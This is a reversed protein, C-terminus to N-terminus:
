DEVEEVEFLFKTMDFGLEGSIKKFSLSQWENTPFIRQTEKGVQLDVPMIFDDVDAQWRYSLTANKGRKKVKIQLKPLHPHHLYQAFYYSLNQKLHKNFFAIVEPTTVQQLRHQEAFKKLTGFWLDDDNIVNRLGHLMWAGKYYIDSGTWGDYNIGLPGLMAQKNSISRRQSMLYQVAKEDNHQCEMYLMESYTTFSEHIWMEAHDNVSLSNGFWEHGSEHVIIYDFGWANNKFENGYAIASQHEMGWYSAEVLKYGDRPFPYPGFYHEFCNLMGTVQAFHKKAEQKHGYLVYYDLTFQSEGNEYPESFHVYDGIYFTVNYNNIPYSVFWEWRNFNGALKSKSRLKGNSVATLGEAVIFAIRMSDPEDSLHDKLPWWSSAGFGECAVGVWSTGREDKEWVFGGDWPPREAEIPTGGYYITIASKTGKKIIEPFDIFVANHERTFKLGKDKYLIKAIQLNSFLDVQLRQIDQLALFDIANSGAIRRKKDDIKVELDYFTM